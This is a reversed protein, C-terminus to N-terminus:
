EVVVRWEYLKYRVCGNQILPDQAVIAKAEELSEAHFIMMGGGRQTWYGSRAQHGNAILEKVYAKHAPVHQDFEPKEVVGEEIKVFWPM